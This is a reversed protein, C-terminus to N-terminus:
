AIKGVPYSKNGSNIYLIDDVINNKELALNILNYYTSRNFFGKINDRVHVLPILTDEFNILKITNVENILFSYEFNTVLELYEDKFNFDTIVYPAIATKVPVKEHPTVLYYSDYDKRLVTSFLKTLRYNKIPSNNYFWEGERDIFFEQGECLDPNWKHFPPFTNGTSKINNAIKSISM